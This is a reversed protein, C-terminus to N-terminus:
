DQNGDGTIKKIQDGAEDIGSVPGDYKVEVYKGTTSDRVIISFSCEPESMYTPKDEIVQEVVPKDVVASDITDKIYGSVLNWIIIGSITTTSFIKGLRLKSSCLELKTFDEDECCIEVSLLNSKKCYNYFDDASLAFATTCDKYGDPLLVIQANMVSSETKVSLHMEKCWEELTKNYDRITLRPEEPLGPINSLSTM